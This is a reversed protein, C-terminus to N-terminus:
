LRKPPLPGSVSTRLTHRAGEEAGGGGRGKGRGRVWVGMQQLLLYDQCKPPNNSVNLAIASWGVCSISEECQVGQRHVALLGFCFLGGSWTPVLPRVPRTRQKRREECLIPFVPLPFASTLLTSNRAAPSARLAINQGLGPTFSPGCSQYNQITLLSSRGDHTRPNFFYHNLVFAPFQSQFYMQM